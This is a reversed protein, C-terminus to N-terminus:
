YFFRGRIYRKALTTQNHIWHTGDASPVHVVFQLLIDFSFVATTILDAQEALAVHTGIDFAIDLPQLVLDTALAALGVASWLVMFTSDPSITWHNEAEQNMKAVLPSSQLEDRKADFRGKKTVPSSTADGSRVPASADGSPTSFRAVNPGRGNSPGNSPAVAAGPM